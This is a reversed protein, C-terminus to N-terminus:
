AASELRTMERRDRAVNWGTRRELEGDSGPWRAIVEFREERTARLGWDGALIRTVVVPDCITAVSDAVFRTPREDPDDIDTWALPPPWGKRRAANRARGIGSREHADDSTPLRMALREYVSRILQDHQAEIVPTQGGVLQKIATLSYGDLAGDLRSWSYGLAHLAQLRRRAGLPSVHSTDTPQHGVLARVAAARDPSMRQIEGRIIKTVYGHSTDLARAIASYSMRDALDVLIVRAEDTPVTTSGGMVHRRYHYNKCKRRHANTTM